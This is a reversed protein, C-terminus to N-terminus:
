SKRCVPASTLEQFSPKSAKQNNSPRTTRARRILPMIFDWLGSAKVVLESLSADDSLPIRKLRRMDTLGDNSGADLSLGCEYGAETLLSLERDSYDGNPFAIASIRLGFFSELDAKCQAIEFNAQSDDCNVLIPHTVTHAQFDVLPALELIEDKSLAQRTTNEKHPDFGRRKLFELRADNPMQKCAEIEATSLPGLWWYPRFSNVIGSCLFITIPIRLEELIEKLRYNGIHGDDFTVILAKAPLTVTTGTKRSELYKSLSIINYRKKLALLHSRAADPRPDHLVVITVKKRQWFERLVLPAGSFRLIFFLFKRIV